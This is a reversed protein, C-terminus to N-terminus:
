PQEELEVTFDFRDNGVARTKQYSKIRITHTVSTKPHVWTDSQYYGRQTNFYNDMTTVDAGTLCQYGLRWTELRKDKKLRTHVTMDEARLSDVIYESKVIQIDNPAPSTPYSM